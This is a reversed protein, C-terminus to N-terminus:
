SAKQLFGAVVDLEAHPLVAVVAYGGILHSNLTELDPPTVVRCLRNWTSLHDKQDPRV